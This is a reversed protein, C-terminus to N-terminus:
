KSADYLDWCYEAGAGVLNVNGLRALAPTPFILDPAMTTDQSKDIKKNITKSKQVILLETWWPQKNIRTFDVGCQRSDTQRGTQRQRDTLNYHFCSPSKKFCGVRYKCGMFTSFCRCYFGYNSVIKISQTFYQLSSTQRDTWKNWSDFELSM